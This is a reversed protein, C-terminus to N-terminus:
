KSLRANLDGAQTRANQEDRCSTILIGTETDVVDHHATPHIDDGEPFSLVVFRLDAATSTNTM